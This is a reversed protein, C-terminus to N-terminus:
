KIFNKIMQLSKIFPEKWWVIYSHELLKLKITNSIKQVVVVTATVGTM